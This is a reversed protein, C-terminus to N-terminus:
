VECFTEAMPRMNLFLRKKIIALVSPLVAPSSDLFESEIHFVNLVAELASRIWLRARRGAFRRRSIFDSRVRSFQATEIRRVTQSVLARMPSFVVLRRPASDAETTTKWLWPLIAGETKGGGTPVRIVRSSFPAEGLEVQYQFPNHHTAQYFFDPFSM